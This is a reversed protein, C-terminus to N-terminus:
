PKAADGKGSKRKSNELRCIITEESGFLNLNQYCRAAGRPLGGIYKSGVIAIENWVLSLCVSDARFPGKLSSWEPSVDGLVAGTHAVHGEGKRLSGGM